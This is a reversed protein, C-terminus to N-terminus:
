GVFWVGARVQIFRGLALEERRLERFMGRAPCYVHRYSLVPRQGAAARAANLEALELDSQAPRTIARCSVHCGPTVHCSVSAELALASQCARSRTHMRTADLRLIVYIGM